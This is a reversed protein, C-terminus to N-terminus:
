KVNKKVKTEVQINNAEVYSRQIVMIALIIAIVLGGILYFANDKNHKYLEAGAIVPVLVAIALRWSM